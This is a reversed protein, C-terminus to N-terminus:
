AIFLRIRACGRDKLAPKVNAGIVPSFVSASSPLLEIDMGVLDGLPFVPQQFAPYAIETLPLGLRLFVDNVHLTKM